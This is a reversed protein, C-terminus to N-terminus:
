WVLVTVIVTDLQGLAKGTPWPPGVRGKSVFPDGAVVFRWHRELGVSVGVRGGVGRDTRRVPAGRRSGCSETGAGSRRRRPRPRGVAGARAERAGLLPRAARGAGPRPWRPSGRWRSSRACCCRARRARPVRDGREDDLPTGYTFYVYLRGPPGFMSANRPPRAGSATARRIAPSTRRPRSSGDRSVRRRRAAAARPDAGAARPRGRGRTARLVGAAAPSPEPAPGQAPVAALKTMPWANIM